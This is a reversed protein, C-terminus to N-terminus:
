IHYNKVRIYETDSYDRVKQLNNTASSTYFLGDTTILHFQYFNKYKEVDEDWISRNTINYQINKDILVIGLVIYGMYLVDGIKIKYIPKMSGNNMIINTEQDFGKRFELIENSKIKSNLQEDTPESTADIDDWDLYENMGTVIIKKSTNLCYVVKPTYFEREISNPHDKVYIWEPDEIGYLVRHYSTVLDNNL